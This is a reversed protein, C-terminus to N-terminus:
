LAPREPPGQRLAIVKKAGYVFLGFWVAALLISLFVMRFDEAQQLLPAATVTLFLMFCANIVLPAREVIQVYIAVVILALVLLVAGGGHHTALQLLWALGSGGLAGLLAAPMPRFEGKDITIWYWFFLLGAYGPAIRLAAAILIFGVLAVMVAAWLLAGMGLTPRAAPPPPAGTM